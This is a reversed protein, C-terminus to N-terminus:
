GEDGSQGMGPHIPPQEGADASVAQEGWPCSFIRFNLGAILYSGKIM